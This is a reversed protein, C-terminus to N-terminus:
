GDPQNGGTKELHNALWDRLLLPQTTALLERLERDGAESYVVTALYILKRFLRLFNRYSEAQTYRLNRMRQLYTQFTENRRDLEKKLKKEGRIVREFLCRLVVVRCKVRYLPDAFRNRYEHMLEGAERFKEQFFLLYGRAFAHYGEQVDAPLKPYYDQVFDETFEPYARGLTLVIAMFFASTIKGEVLFWEREVGLRYIDTLDPALPLLGRRHLECSVNLAYFYVRRYAFREALEQSVEERLISWLKRYASLSAEPEATTSADFLLLYARLLLHDTDAFRARLREVEPPCTYPQNGDRIRNMERREFETSLCLLAYRLEARHTLHPLLDATAFPDNAPHHYLRSAAQEYDALQREDHHRPDGWDTLLKQTSKKFQDFSHARAEAELELQQRLDSDDEYQRQVHFERLLKTLRHRNHNLVSNIAEDTGPGDPELKRYIARHNVNEFDPHHPILEDLLLICKQNTNFWPSRVFKKFQRLDKRLLEALLLYLIPM